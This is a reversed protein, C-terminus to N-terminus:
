SLVPSQERKLSGRKQARKFISLCLRVSAGLSLNFKFDEQKRGGTGTSRGQLLRVVVMRPQGSAVKLM